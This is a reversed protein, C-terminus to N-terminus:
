FPEKPIRLVGLLEEILVDTFVRYNFDKDEMTHISINEIKTSKLNKLLTTFGKIPTNRSQNINNRVTYLELINQISAFKGEECPTIAYKQLNGLLLLYNESKQNEKLLKKLKELRNIM